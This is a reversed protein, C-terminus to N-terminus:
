HHAELRQGDYHLTVLFSAGHARVGDLPSDSKKLDISSGLSWRPTLAVSLHADLTLLTAQQATTLGALSSSSRTLNVGGHWRESWDHDLGAAFLTSRSALGIGSPDVSRQAKTSSRTTPTWGATWELDYLVGWDHGSNRVQVPIAQVLGADCLAVDTPCVLISQRVEQRTRSAGVNAILSQTEDLERTAGVQLNDIFSRQSKNLVHFDAHSAQATLQDREDLAYQWGGGLSVQDYNQATVLNASYGTHTFTASGNVSQRESLSHSWAAQATSTQQIGHGLILNASTTTGVGQLTDTRTSSLQGSWADREDKLSQSLTLFDLFENQHLDGRLFQETLRTDLRTTAAETERSAGLIVSANLQAVRDPHEALNYNTNGGLSM